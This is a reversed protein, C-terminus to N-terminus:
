KNRRDFEKIVQDTLDITASHYIVIKLTTESGKDLVAMFGNREAVVAAAQDIKKQYEEAVERQKNQIERNFDQLRQQYNQLKTRFQEQKDRRAAESLDAEQDKLEKELQKLHEDDASIIKQRSDSFEKLGELARRGAKTKELVAQPDIVGIKMGDACLSSSGHGLVLLVTGLGIIWSGANRM